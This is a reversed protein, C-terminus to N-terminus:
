EEQNFVWKQSTYLLDQQQFCVGFVVLNTHTVILNAWSQAIHEIYM